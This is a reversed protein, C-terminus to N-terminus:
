VFHKRGFLERTEDLKEKDKYDDPLRVYACFHSVNEFYYVIYPIGKYIKIM